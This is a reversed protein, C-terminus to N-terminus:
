LERATMAPCSEFIATCFTSEYITHPERTIAVAEYYGAEALTAADLQTVPRLQDGIQVFRPLRGHITEDPYRHM